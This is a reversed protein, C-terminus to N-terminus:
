HGLGEDGGGGSVEDVGDVSVEEGGDEPVEDGGEETDEGSDHSKQRKGMIDDVLDYFKQKLEEAIPLLTTPLAVTALPKMTEIRYIRNLKAEVLRMANEFPLKMSRLHLLIDHALAPFHDHFRYAWVQIPMEHLTSLALESDDGHFPFNYGDGSYQELLKFAQISKEM